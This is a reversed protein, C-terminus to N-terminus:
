YKFPFTLLLSVDEEEDSQLSRNPKPNEKFNASLVFNYDLQLELVQLLIEKFNEKKM